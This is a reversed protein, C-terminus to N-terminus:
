QWLFDRPEYFDEIEYFPLRKMSTYAIMSLSAMISPLRDYFYELRGNSPNLQKPTQPVIAHQLAFIAPELRQPVFISFLPEAPKLRRGAKPSSSIGAL